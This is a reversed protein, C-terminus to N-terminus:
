RGIGFFDNKSCPASERLGRLKQYSAYIAKELNSKPESISDLSCLYKATNDGISVKIELLGPDLPGSASGPAKLKEEQKILHDAQKKLEALEIISISEFSKDDVVFERQEQNKITGCEQWLAGKELYFREFFTNNITGRAAFLDIKLSASALEPSLEPPAASSCSYAFFLLIILTRSM